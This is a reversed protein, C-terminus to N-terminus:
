RPALPRVSPADWRSFLIFTAFAGGQAVRNISKSKLGVAVGGSVAGLLLPLLSYSELQLARMPDGLSGGKPDGACGAKFSIFLTFVAGTAFLLWLALPLDRPTKIAM